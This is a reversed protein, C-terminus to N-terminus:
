PVRIQDISYPYRQIAGNDRTAEIVGKDPGERNKLDGAGNFVDDIFRSHQKVLLM